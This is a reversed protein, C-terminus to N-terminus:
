EGEPILALLCRCSDGGACDRNPPLLRDHEASNFPARKGDDSRCPGCTAADLIATYEVQAVGGLIRAAEDRGLNLVKATVTGADARFAGTELQRTVTRAVVEAASGGTRLVDIAERELEGRLRSVMRRELAKAQAEVVEETESEITRRIDDQQEDQEDGEAAKLTKARALEGEAYRAGQERVSALYARLTAGLRRTDLPMSAVEDPSGDAMAAQIAPAAMALMALVEPRVRKEFAERQATLYEDMRSLEMRQEAARLPRWPAWGGRQASAALPRPNPARPAIGPSTAGEEGAGGAPRDPKFSKLTQMLRLAREREINFFTIMAELAADFPLSGDAVRQMLDTAAQVQAGNLATDQAKEVELGPATPLEIGPTVDAPKAAAREDDDIPAFGLRERFVNEDKTTVTLLGAAKGQAAATAMVDPPLEARKMTLSIRPYAPQPGWNVDVLKKVYGQLESELVTIVGRVYAQARADHVEGVSRSGTEGTGLVLQQAGVQQLVVLGLDKWAQLVHGKNAGPSFVWNLKWGNPMVVGGAEHFSLNALVTNLEDRQAPTLEADLEIAEAVPVGAGERQLTVGLLKLLMPMVRNAIYWVSRFASFGAWNTGSRQWTFLLVDERRLEASTWKGSPGRPAHQRIALLRSGDESEVWPNSALSSPLRELVRRLALGKGGPLEARVVPGAVPEFLSFGSALMGAAAQSLVSPLGAEAELGDAFNWRLFDAQQQALASGKLEEPLTFDVRADRIPGCIFDLGAAVYANARRAEEWEGWSTSGAVGYGATDRLAQNAEVNLRGGYNATGSAGQPATKVPASAQGDQPLLSQPRSFLGALFGM